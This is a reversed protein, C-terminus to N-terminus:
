ETEYMSRWSLIDAKFLKVLDPSKSSYDITQRPNIQLDYLAFEDSSPLWVFHWRSDRRYYGIMKIGMPDDNKNLIQGRFNTGSRHNTLRGVM